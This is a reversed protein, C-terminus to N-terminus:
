LANAWGQQVLDRVLRAYSGLNAVGVALAVGALSREVLSMVVLALLLPPLALLVDILSDMLRLASAASGLVLGGLVSMATAAIAMSLSRQGGHLLRVHACRPGALDTGLPDLAPSPAALTNELQTRTPPPL